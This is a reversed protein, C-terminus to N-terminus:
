ESMLLRYIVQVGEARTMFQKPAFTGEDRGQVIGIVSAADIYPLAWANALDRDDYTAKTTVEVTKGSRYEYARIIMTVMEERTIQDNPAFREASRGYIIKAETAASIAEAHMMGSNVDTYTASKAAKLGLTRTILEAFEARTMQEQPAFESDSVGSVIHKASLEKIAHYAWYNDAVDEFTKDYELVAYTSFHNVDVVMEGDVLKGGVYEMQGDDAIYYVGLLAKNAGDHIKLRLTIAEEFQNLAFEKGDSTIMSLTFEYVDGAAKLKATSKGKTENLLETTQEDSLTDFNFAIQSGALQNSTVLSQLKKLIGSPIQVTLNDNKLELKRDGVIEAAKAPLMVQKKGGAIDIAVKDKSINQLSKENVILRDPVAGPGADGDDDTIPPNTIPPTHTDQNGVTMNRFYISNDDVFFESPYTGIWHGVAVNATYTGETPLKIENGSSTSSLKVLYEHGQVLPIDLLLLLRGNTYPKYSVHNVASNITKDIIEFDGVTMAAENFATNTADNYPLSIRIANTSNISIRSPTFRVLDSGAPLYTAATVTSFLSQGTMRYSGLDAMSSSGYYYVGPYSPYDIKTLSHTQGGLDVSLSSPAQGLNNIEYYFNTYPTNADDYMSNSTLDRYTAQTVTNTIMRVSVSNPDNTYVYGAVQTGGPRYIFYMVNAAYSMIPLVMSFVMALVLMLSTKRLLRIM